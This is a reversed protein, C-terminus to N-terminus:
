KLADLCKRAAMETEMAYHLINKNHSDAYTADMEKSKARLKDDLASACAADKCACLEDKLKALAALDAAGEDNAVAKSEPAPKDSKDGSRSCGIALLAALTIAFLKTM